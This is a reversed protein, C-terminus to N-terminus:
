QRRGYKKLLERLREHPLAEVRHNDRGTMGQNNVLANMIAEETGQLL